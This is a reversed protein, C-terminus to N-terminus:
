KERGHLPLMIKVKFVFISTPLLTELTAFSPFMCAGHINKSIHKRTKHSTDALNSSAFCRKKGTFSLNLSASFKGCVCGRLHECMNAFIM